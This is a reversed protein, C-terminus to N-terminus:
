LKRTQILDSDVCKNWPEETEQSLIQEMALYQLRILCEHMKDFEIQRIDIIVIM